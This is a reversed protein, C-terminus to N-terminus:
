KPIIIEFSAGSSVVKNGVFRITGSFSEELIKRIYYLGIGSGGTANQHPPTATVGLKFINDPSDLFNDSLGLGNDSFLIILKDDICSINIEIYNAQWKKSNSVLNDLIISLHLVNAITKFENCTININFTFGKNESYIDDYYTFYQSIYSPIDLIIDQMEMQIDARTALKAVNLCKEAEYKIQGLYDILQNEDLNKLQAQQVVTNVLSLINITNIKINHILGDAESSLTKRTALLYTTLQRETTLEVEVQKRANEEQKKIEEALRKEELAIQLDKRVGDLITNTDEFILDSKNAQETNKENNSYKSTAIMEKYLKSLTIKNYELQQLAGEVEYSPATEIQEILKEVTKKVKEQEERLLDVIIDNNIYLDIINEKKVDIINGIISLIRRTKVKENEYYIENKEADKISISSLNDEFSKTIRNRKTSLTEEDDEEEATVKDWKLGDVVFKELRKLTYYFFGDREVLESYYKDKVIGERSSVISFNNNLDKIEIRGILDRTSLFRRTGQGKRLELGLWDDGEEGYPPIMFGNIFLFISGFHKSRIGTQKTFYMKSYTNLFYIVINIDKLLKFDANKEELIFIDRGKDNITTTITQGYKDINSTITTSTFDLKDFIKNKIPGNLKDHDSLLEDEEVFDEVKLNINFTSKLFSQNPNILRELYKRLKEIKATNWWESKPTKELYAWKSRLKSIELILGNDFSKYKTIDEFKEKPIITLYVKIQQIELNQKEKEDLNKEETEFDNWNVALHCYDGKDKRTYLDLFQGLRDCSFRGVGKNGALIRDYAEKIKRKESYAINLWKGEIDEKNMGVGFDEIIIKSTNKSYTNNLEDDNEKLNKFTVNVSSSGADYSNKVLELVAINDDNILDKGIISKLLVNTKFSLEQPRPQM